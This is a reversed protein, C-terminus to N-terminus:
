TPVLNSFPRKSTSMITAMLACVRGTPTRTLGSIREAPSHDVRENIGLAADPGTLAGAMAISLPPCTAKGDGAPDAAASTDPPTLKAGNDDIPFQEVIKLNTQSSNNQEPTSQKSCAAIGVVLLGASGLAFASRAIRSRM